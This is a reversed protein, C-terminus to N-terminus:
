AEPWMKRARKAAQDVVAEYDDPYLSCELLDLIADGAVDPDHTIEQDAVRGRLRFSDGPVNITLSRIM